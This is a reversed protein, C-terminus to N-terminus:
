EAFGYKEGVEHDECECCKPQATNDLIMQQQLLQQRDHEESAELVGEGDINHILAWPELCLLLVNM